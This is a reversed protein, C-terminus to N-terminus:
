KNFERELMEDPAWLVTGYWLLNNTLTKEWYVEDHGGDYQYFWCSLGAVDLQQLFRETGALYPDEFGIDIHIKLPALRGRNDRLTTYIMYDSVFSGPLSHLGLVGFKDYENFALIEAWLAGRSIGGVGTSARDIRVPFHDEIFPMLEDIIQSRFSSEDIAELYKEERPFVIIFPKIMGTSILSEMKDIIGIRQWITEDQSQGHLLYLVPYREGNKVEKPIYVSFKMPFSYSYLAPLSERVSGSFGQVSSFASLLATTVLLLFSLIFRRKM